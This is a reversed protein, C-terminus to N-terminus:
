RLSINTYSSKYNDSHQKNFLNAHKCNDYTSCLVTLVTPGPKAEM